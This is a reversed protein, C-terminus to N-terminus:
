PGMKEFRGFGGSGAPNFKDEHEPAFAGNGGAIKQTIRDADEAVMTFNITNIIALITTLLVCVAIMAYIVFKKRVKKM